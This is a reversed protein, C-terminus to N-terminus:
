KRDPQSFAAFGFDARDEFVSEYFDAQSTFKARYFRAPGAFTAKRFDSSEKFDVSDLFANKLFRSQRFAAPKNFEAGIFNVDGAFAARSFDAGEIFTAYFFTCSTSFHRDPYNAAPFVFGSFDALGTGAAELICDFQKQFEADSKNWDRSHMLCVRPHEFISGIYIPRGCVAEGSMTVPCLNAKSRSGPTTQAEEM